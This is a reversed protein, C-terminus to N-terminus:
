GAFAFMLIFFANNISAAADPSEIAVIMLHGFSSTFVMFIWVILFACVGRSHTQGTIAANQHLGIPYYWCLFCLVGM